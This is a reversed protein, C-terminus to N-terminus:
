EGDKRVKTFIQIIKVLSNIFIFFFLFLILVIFYKILNM